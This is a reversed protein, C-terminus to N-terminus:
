FFTAEIQKLCLATILLDAAGGFSLGELICKNSFRIVDQLNDADLSKFEDKIFLYKEWSGSRTLFTTDECLLILKVLINRLSNEDTEDVRKLLDYIAQVSPLGNIVEGRAGLLGYKDYVNTGHTNLNEKFDNIVSHFIEKMTQNIMSFTQKNSLVQGVAVLTAGLVFILGKYCNIGNTHKFMENEALRGITRASDVLNLENQYGLEFLQIFFPILVDITSHMLRYNMDSHSGSSSKTVLGFKHELNLELEMAKKIISQLSQTIFEMTIHRVYDMTEVEPHKRSKICHFAIDGCLFCTRPSFALNSRSLPGGRDYVDLDILRGLPHQEEIEITKRKIVTSDSSDIIGIYYPGDYSENLQLSTFRIYQSIHNKFIRVLCYAERTNKDLGVTNAKIILVVHKPNSVISQIQHHRNERSDLILDMM